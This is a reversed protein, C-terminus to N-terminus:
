YNINIITKEPKNPISKVWFPSLIVKASGVGAVGRLYSKIDDEDKGALEQKIKGTDIKAYATGSIAVTFELLNEADKFNISKYSLQLKDPIVELNRTKEVHQKVLGDLDPQNFGITKLSGKLSMTFSDAAEDIKASSEPQGIKVSLKDITKLGATQLKLGEDIDKQLQAQLTEKAKNYDNETIVKARGSIGGKMAEATEGYIKEYRGADARENFAPIVFKGASINYTEGAKDAVVEVDVAGPTIEGNAVKTGPVTVTTLTRFILGDKEFRTTAILVQPTTGYANYIKMMGRAKQAVDKEGTAPFTRSVTKDVSFLQGPIKNLNQDVLSFKDSASVKLETELPQKQPVIEIRANGTSVFIIAGLLLLSVGGLIIVSKKSLNRFEFRFFPKRPEAPRRSRLGLDAWISKDDEERDPLADWVNEIEEVSQRPSKKRVDLRVPRDKRPSVSLHTGSRGRVIGELGGRPRTPLQEEQEVEEEPEEAPEDYQPEEIEEKDKRHNESHPMAWEQPVRDTVPAVFVREQGKPMLVDFRYKRAMKNVDPNSCLVSIKKESKLAENALIIFHEESTFAKSKKPLVFIVEKASTEKFLDLIEEFKDDKLVNIIKTSAM